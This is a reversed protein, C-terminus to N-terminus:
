PSSSINETAHPQDNSPLPTTGGAIRIVKGNFTTDDNIVRKRPAM